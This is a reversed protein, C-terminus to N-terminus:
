RPDRYNKGVDPLRCRKDREEKEGSELAEILTQVLRRRRIAGACPPLERAYRNRQELRRDEDREDEAREVGKADEIEDVHHGAPAGAGGGLGDREVGEVREQLIEFEAVARRQRHDDEDHGEAERHEVYASEADVEAVRASSLAPSLGCRRARPGRAGRERRPREM